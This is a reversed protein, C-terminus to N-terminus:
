DDAFCNCPAVELLSALFRSLRVQAKVSSGEGGGPLSVSPLGVGPVSINPLEPLGFAGASDPRASVVGATVTVAASLLARRSVRPTLNRPAASCSVAALHPATSSFAASVTFAAM